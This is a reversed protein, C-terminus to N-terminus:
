RAVRSGERDVAEEFLERRMWWPFWDSRGDLKSVFYVKGSGIHHVTVRGRPFRHNRLALIEEDTM